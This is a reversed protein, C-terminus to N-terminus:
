SGKNQKCEDVIEKITTGDELKFVSTQVKCKKILKECVEDCVIISGKYSWLMDSQLACMDTSSAFVENFFAVKNTDGCCKIFETLLADDNKSFSNKYIAIM